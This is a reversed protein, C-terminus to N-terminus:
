LSEDCVAPPSEAQPTSRNIQRARELILVDVASVLEAAVPAEVAIVLQVMGSDAM